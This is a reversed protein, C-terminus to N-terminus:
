YGMKNKSIYLKGDQGNVHKIAEYKGLSNYDAGDNSM